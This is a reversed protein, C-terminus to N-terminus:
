FVMRQIEEFHDLNEQVFLGVGNKARSKQGTFVTTNKEETMLKSITEQGQQAIDDRVEIEGVHFGTVLHNSGCQQLAHRKDALAKSDLRFNGDLEGLAARANKLNGNTVGAAGILFALLNAPLVAKARDDCNEPKAIGVVNVGLISRFLTTYPFLTSRPPRRIM